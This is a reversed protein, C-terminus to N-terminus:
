AGEEGDQVAQKERLYFEVFRTDSHLGDAIEIETLLEAYRDELLSLVVSTRDLVNISYRRSFDATYVFAGTLNLKGAEVEFDYKGHKLYATYRGLWTKNWISHWRYSGAKVKLVRFYDGKSVPGFHISGGIAGLRNININQAYGRAYFLIVVLGEDPGLSEIDLREVIADEIADLNNKYRELNSKFSRRVAAQQYCTFEASNEVNLAEEAAEDILVRRYEQPEYRAVLKDIILTLRAKEQEHEPHDAVQRLILDAVKRDYALSAKDAKEVLWSANNRLMKQCKAFEKDSEAFAIHTFLSSVTIVLFTM